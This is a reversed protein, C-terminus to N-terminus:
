LIPRHSSAVQDVITLLLWPPSGLLNAATRAHSADWLKYRGLTLAITELLEATPESDFPARPSDPHDEICAVEGVRAADWPTSPLASACCNDRPQGPRQPHHLRPVLCRTGLSTPQAPAPRHDGGIGFDHFQRPPEVKRM